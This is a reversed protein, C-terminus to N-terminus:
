REVFQFSQSSQNFWQCIHLPPPMLGLSRVSTSSYTQSRCRHCLLSLSLTRRDTCHSTSYLFATITTALRIWSCKVKVPASKTLLLSLPTTLAMEQWQVLALESERVPPAWNLSHTQSTLICEKLWRPNLSILISTPELRISSKRKRTLLLVSPPLLLRYEM